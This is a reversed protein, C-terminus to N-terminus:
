DNRNSFISHKCSVEETIEGGAEVYVEGSVPDVVEHLTVRGIIRESLTEVIDENKKLASVEVGRLPVM